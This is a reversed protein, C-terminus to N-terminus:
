PCPVSPIPPRDAAALGSGDLMVLGDLEVGLVFGRRPEDVGPINITRTRERDAM